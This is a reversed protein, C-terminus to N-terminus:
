GEVVLNEICAEHVAIDYGKGDGGGKWGFWVDTIVM